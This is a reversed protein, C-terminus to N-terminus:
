APDPQAAEPAHYELRGLHVYIKALAVMSKRFAAALATVGGFVVLAGCLGIKCWALAVWLLGGPVGLVLLNRYASYYSWQVNRYRLVHPPVTRWFKKFEEETLQTLGVWQDLFLEGMAFGIADMLLGLLYSVVLVVVVDAGSLTNVVAVVTADVSQINTLDLVAVIVLLIASGSLIECFVEGVNIEKM